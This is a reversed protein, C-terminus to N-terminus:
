ASLAHAIVPAIGSSPATCMTFAILPWAMLWKVLPLRHRPPVTPYLGVYAALGAITLVAVPVVASITAM